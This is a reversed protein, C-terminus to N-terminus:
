IISSDYLQRQLSKDETEMIFSSAHLLVFYEFLIWTNWISNLFELTEFLPVKKRKEKRPIVFLKIKRFSNDLHCKGM